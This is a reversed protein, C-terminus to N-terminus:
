LAGAARQGGQPPRREGVGSRTQEASQEISTHGAEFDVHRWRLAATEGRRLGCLGALLTPVFMRNGQLKELLEVTQALDYTKMASREVKPPKLGDAPNIALLRCPFVAHQLAERLGRRLRCKGSAAGAIEQGGQRLRGEEERQGGGM